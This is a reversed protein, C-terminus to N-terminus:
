RRRARARIVLGVVLGPLVFGAGLVVAAVLEFPALNHTTADASTDRVISVLDIAPACALMVGTVWRAPVVQGGILAMTAIGLLIAGPLLETHSLDFQNYPIHWYPIGIAVFAIAFAAALWIPRQKGV